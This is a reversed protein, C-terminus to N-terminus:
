SSVIKVQDNFMMVERREGSVTLYKVRDDFM